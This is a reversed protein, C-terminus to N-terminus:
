CNSSDEDSSSFKAARLATATLKSSRVLFLPWSEEFAHMLVMLKSVSAYKTGDLLHQFPDLSKGRAYVERVSETARCFLLPPWFRHSGDTFLASSPSSDSGSPKWRVTGRKGGQGRCVDEAYPM